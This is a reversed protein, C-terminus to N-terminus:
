AQGPYVDCILLAQEKAGLAGRNKMESTQMFIGPKLGHYITNERFYEDSKIKKNDWSDPGIFCSGGCERNGVANCFVTKLGTSLYFDQGFVYYDVARTACAPVLLIPTRIYREEQQYLATYKGFQQM